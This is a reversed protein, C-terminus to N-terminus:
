KAHHKLTVLAVRFNIAGLHSVSLVPPALVHDHGCRSVQHGRPGPLALATGVASAGATWGGAVWTTGGVSM